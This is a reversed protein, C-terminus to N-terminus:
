KLEKNTTKTKSAIDMLVDMGNAKLSGKINQSLESSIPMGTKVNVEMTGTQIGSLKGEMGASPVMSIVSEIGISATNRQVNKLTYKTKMELNMGSVSMVQSAEWSDGEKVLNAPYIKLSQEFQNKITENNFQQKMSAGVQMAMPGDAAVAQSMSEAIADMGTVSSVSGDSAIHMEFPKGILSGLMKGMMKDMESPNELPNKSDYGMKMMASSLVYSIDQYTCQAVTEKTNKEKINMIYSMTVDMEMPIEQGMATQKLLQVTEQTYQYKTGKEPNFSLKVQASATSLMLSLSLFAFVIKRM